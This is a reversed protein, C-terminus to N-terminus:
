LGYRQWLLRDEVSAFAGAAAEGALGDLGLRRLMFSRRGGILRLRVKEGYKRRMVTRLDGLDDVLGLERARAGTWFEGSFLTADDAKLRDGRRARVMDIFALHIEQQLAKLREVDASKEPAFPDLMAKKEGATHVRREIGFRGIFEQLGFGASIVGISGVISSADAYVEDAACALWYGGSAAVDEAFAYVPVKKEEALARIRGAILSSQVPSGGPSNIALAVATLHRMKFARELVGAYAALSLGHRRFAMGGDFITGSLRVVAVTPPTEGPRVRDILNQLWM